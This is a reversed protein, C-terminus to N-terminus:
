IKKLELAEEENTKTDIKSQEVTKEFPLANVNIWDSLKTYNIKLKSISEITILIAISKPLATSSTLVIGISPNLISM